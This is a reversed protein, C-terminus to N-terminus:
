KGQEEEFWKRYWIAFDIYQRKPVTLDPKRNESLSDYISGLQLSLIGASWGDAIIHHLIFVFKFGEPELKLLVGKCLPGEQLNFRNRRLRTTIQDSETARVALPKESLDIFTFDVPTKDLIQQRPVGDEDTFVTRFTEHQELLLTLAKLFREVVVTANIEFELPINYAVGTEDQKDIFWLGEQTFSLPYNEADRPYRPIVTSEESEGLKEQILRTLLALTPNRMFDRMSLSLGFVKDVRGMLQMARLSHGGMDFFDDNSGSGEQNLTQAWIKALKREVESKPKEETTQAKVESQPKPLAQRNIKGQRNYPMFELPTIYAPVMYDPLQSALFKKLEAQELGTPSTYYLALSLEGRIEPTVCLAEGVGQNSLAISTIEEPEIRHGRIKVQFDSRGVFLLVGDERWKVLDGTNYLKGKGFPSDIFKEATLEPRNLYGVGVGEGGIYLTGTVQPPVLRLKEDLVYVKTNSVPKGIPLENGDLETGYHATAIITTETPGYTNVLAIKGKTVKHWRTFREAKEGGLIILRLTDPLQIDDIATVLEHWYATPLDALTIANATLNNVFQQITPVDLNEPFVVTGGSLWIPLMEELSLDFSLSGFQLIREKETLNFLEIAALNHNILNRHTLVAGKPKGTSGSTYIIYAKDDPSPVTTSKAKSEKQLDGFLLYPITSDDVEVKSVIVREVEADSIISLKRQEPMAEDLPLYICGAKLIGALTITFDIGRPLSVGIVSGPKAKKLIASAFVDSKHDLEGYTLREAGQIVALKETRATARERFLEAWSKELPYDRDTDNWEDLITARLAPPLVEIENVLAEPNSIMQELVYDFSTAMNRVLEDSIIDTNYEFWCELEGKIEDITLDLDLKATRNGIEKMRIQVTDGSTDPIPFNQFVFMVEFLPHRSPDHRYGMSKILNDFPTQAMSFATLASESEGAVLSSITYDNDFRTRLAVLNTFIGITHEWRSDDRGAYPSGVVIDDAGTYHKMVIKLATELVVYMSTNLTATFKKLKNTVSLPIHWWYREGISTMESSRRQKLPLDVPEPFPLLRQKWYDLEIPDVGAQEEKSIKAAYDTYDATIEPLVADLKEIKANYIERLDRLFVGM